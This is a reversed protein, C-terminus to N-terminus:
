GRSPPPASIVSPSHRTAHTYSQAGGLSYAPVAAAAVLHESSAASWTRALFCLTFPAGLFSHDGGIQRVQMMMQKQSLILSQPSVGLADIGYVVISCVCTTGWAHKQELTLRNGKKLWPAMQRFRRVCAGMRRQMSLNLTNKYGSM